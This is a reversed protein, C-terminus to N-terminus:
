FDELREVEERIFKMVRSKDVYIKASSVNLIEAAEQGSRGEIATLEFARWVNETVRLQVRLLALETLETDFEEALQQVLEDRAELSHLHDEDDNGGGFREEKKSWDHWANHTVTKLWARFSQKGDHQFNRIFRAMRLMVDQAVDVADHHSLGRRMCWNLVLPEYRGVFRGWASEDGPHTKLTHLLTLSTSSHQNINRQAM